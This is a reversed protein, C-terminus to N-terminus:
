PSQSSDITRLADAARQRVLPTLGERSLGDLEPRAEGLRHQAIWVQARALRAEDRTKPNDSAVLEDFAREAGPYDGARMAAAAAIWPTSSPLPKAPTAEPPTATAVALKDPPPEPPPSPARRPSVLAGLSTTRASEVRVLASSAPSVVPQAPVPASLAPAVASETPVPVSSVSNSAELLPGPPRAGRALGDASSALTKSPSSARTLSYGRGRAFAVAGVLVVAVLAFSLRSPRARNRALFRARAAAVDAASPELERWTRALRRTREVSTSCAMCQKLHLRLEQPVVSKKRSAEERAREGVLPEICESSTM